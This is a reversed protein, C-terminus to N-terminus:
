LLDNGLYKHLRTRLRRLTKRKLERDVKSEEVASILYRYAFIATRPDFRYPIGDKGGIAYAYIFPDPPHTVSDRTSTPVGYIIDAILALARVVAPGVGPALGLDEPNVLPFDGLRELSKKLQPSLKMPRYYRPPSTVVVDRRQDELFDILTPKRKIRSLAEELKRTLHKGESNIIEIYTRLAEKSEEATANLTINNSPIGSIGSHPEILSSHNIHYRRAYKTSTNMGQQVVLIKGNDAVIVAHQYLDYGDQLFASDIRATLRSFRTIKDSDVGLIKEAKEAEEPVLRMRSGKGGLVLFGLSPDNWTITKLIGLVVTTSGSSDWDMGIVNNFAQFWVPDSLMAIVADVGREDIIYRIISDGLKKMIRLMWPPVRGGHLPLDAVGPM